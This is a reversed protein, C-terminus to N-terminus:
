EDMGFCRAIIKGAVGRKLEIAGESCMEHCCYCRICRDPDIIAGKEGLTIAQLPCIMICKGCRSCRSSIVSPRLSYVRGARQVLALGANKRLGKGSGLYTSPKRYDPVILDELEEGVMKICPPNGTYLGNEMAVRILPVESPEIGMLRALVFDMTLYSPSACIAGIKRPKGSLPGNGEMGVIADMVQLSPRILGNLDLLMQSFSADDRFRSHFAPKELGPIVGFLNKGAGSMLTWLHTKAKSIVIVRDAALVPNIVPFRKVLVGAPNASGTWSTDMNLRIGPEKAITDYGAQRYTRELSAPSYLVGGGPSDGIVVECDYDRLMAAVASVVLPHTTVCHDPSLGQLLNPKILVHDGPSVFREMGGILDIADRVSRRVEETQYETCRVLSVIGDDM